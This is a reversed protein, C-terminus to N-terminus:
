LLQQFETLATALIKIVVCAWLVSEKQSAVFFM